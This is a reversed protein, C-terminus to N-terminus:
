SAPYVWLATTDSPASSSSATIVVPNPTLVKTGDTNVKGALATYVGGSQVPNTSGQTPTADTTVTISALVDAISVETWHAPTWAEATSIDQNAQYLGGDHICLDDKEYTASASYEDAFISMDIDTGDESVLQWYQSSASPTNGTTTQKSIYTAGEYRVFCLKEYTTAANYDGNTTVTIKGLDQASM